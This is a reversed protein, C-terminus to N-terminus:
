NQVWVIRKHFKSKIRNRVILISNSNCSNRILIGSHVSFQYVSVYVYEPLIDSINLCYLRRRRGLTQGAIACPGSQPMDNKMKDPRLRRRTHHERKAHGRQTSRALTEKTPWLLTFLSDSASSSVDVHEQVSHDEGEFEFKLFTLYKVSTNPKIREKWCALSHRVCMWLVVPKRFLAWACLCVSADILVFCQLSIM